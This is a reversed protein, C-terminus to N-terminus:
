GTARMEHLLGIFIQTQYLGFVTRRRNGTAETGASELLGSVGEGVILYYLVAYGSDNSM